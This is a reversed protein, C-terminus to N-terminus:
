CTEIQNTTLNEEGNPITIGTERLMEGNPFRFSARRNCGRRSVKSRSVVSNENTWRGLGNDTTVTEEPIFYKEHHFVLLKKTM